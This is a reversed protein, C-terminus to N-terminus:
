SNKVFYKRFFICRILIDFVGVFYAIVSILNCERYPPLLFGLFACFLFSIIITIPVFVSMFGFRFLVDYVKNQINLGLKKKFIKSLIFLIIFECLFGLLFYPSEMMIRIIGIVGGWAFCLGDRSSYGTYLYYLFRGLAFYGYFAFLNFSIYKKLYDM